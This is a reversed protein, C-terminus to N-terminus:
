FVYYDNFICSILNKLHFRAINDHTTDGLLNVASEEASLASILSVIQLLPSNKKANIKVDYRRDKKVVVLHSNASRVEAWHTPLIYVNQPM